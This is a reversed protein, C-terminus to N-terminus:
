LYHSQKGLIGDGADKWHIWMENLNIFVWLFDKVEERTVIKLSLGQLLFIYRHYIREFRYPMTLYYGGASINIGMPYQVVKLEKYM